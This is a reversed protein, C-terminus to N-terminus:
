SKSKGVEISSDTEAPTKARVETSSVEHEDAILEMSGIGPFDQVGRNKDHSNADGGSEEALLKALQENYDAAAEESLPVQGRGMLVKRAYRSVMTVESDFWVGCKELHRAARNHKLPHTSFQPDSCGPEPCLLIYFALESDPLKYPFIYSYPFFRTLTSNVIPKNVPQNRRGWTYEVEPGTVPEKLHKRDNNVSPKETRPQKAPRDRRPPDPDDHTATERQRKHSPKARKKSNPERQQPERQSKRSEKYVTPIGSNPPAELSRRSRRSAATSPASRTPPDRNPPRESPPPPAFLTGPRRVPLTAPATEEPPPAAASPLRRRSERASATVAPRIPEPLAQHNSALKTTMGHPRVTPQVPGSPINAVCLPMTFLPLTECYRLAFTSTFFSGVQRYTFSELNPPFNHKARAAIAERDQDPFRQSMSRILRDRADARAVALSDFLHELHRNVQTRFHRTCEDVAKDVEESAEPSLAPQPASSGQQDQSSSM